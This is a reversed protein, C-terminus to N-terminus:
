TLTTIGRPAARHVVLLFKSRICIGIAFIRTCMFRRTNYPQHKRGPRHNRLQKKDLEM